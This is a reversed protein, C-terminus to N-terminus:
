GAAAKKKKQTSKKNKGGKKKSVACKRSISVNAKQNSKNHRKRSETKAYRIANCSSVRVANKTNAKNLAYIHASKKSNQRERKKGIRM